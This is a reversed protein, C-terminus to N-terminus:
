CHQTNAFTRTYPQHKTEKKKIKEHKVHLNKKILAAYRQVSNPTGTATGM